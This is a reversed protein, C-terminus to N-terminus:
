YVTYTGGSDCSRFTHLPLNASAGAASPPMYQALHGPTAGLPLAVTNWLNVVEPVPISTGGGSRTELKVRREHQDKQQRHDTLSGRNNLLGGKTPTKLSWHAAGPGM